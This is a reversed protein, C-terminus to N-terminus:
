VGKMKESIDVRAWARLPSEEDEIDQNTSHAITKIINTYQQLTEKYLKSAPTAKQRQSNNPDVRIQPLSRYYELQSEVFILDDILKDVLENNTKILKKIQTKRDM